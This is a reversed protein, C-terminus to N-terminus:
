PYLIYALNSGKTPVGEIVPIKALFAVFDIEMIMFPNSKEHM